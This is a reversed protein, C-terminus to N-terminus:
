NALKAQFSDVSVSSHNSKKETQKEILIFEEGKKKKRVLM